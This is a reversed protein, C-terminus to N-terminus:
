NNIFGLISFAFDVARISHHRSILKIDIKKEVVKLGGCAM